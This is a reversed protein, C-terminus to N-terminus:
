SITGVLFLIPILDPSFPSLFCVEISLIERHSVRVLPHILPSPYYATSPFPLRIVYSSFSLPPTPFLILLFTSTYSIPHSSYLLHLFYSSFSLPPTPFLILLIPSTYSIFYPSYPLHLFLILLVSCLM